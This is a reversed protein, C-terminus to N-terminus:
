RRIGGLKKKEGESYNDSDCTLQVIINYDIIGVFEISDCVATQFGSVSIMAM